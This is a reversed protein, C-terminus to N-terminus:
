ASPPLHTMVVLVRKSVSSANEAAWSSPSSKV